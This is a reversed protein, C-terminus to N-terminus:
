FHTVSSAAALLLTSDDFADFDLTDVTVLGSM